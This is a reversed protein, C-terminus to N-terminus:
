YLRKIESSKRIRFLAVEDSLGAIAQKWQDASSILCKVFADNINQFVVDIDKVLVFNEFQVHPEMIAALTGLQSEQDMTNYLKAIEPSFDPLFENPM